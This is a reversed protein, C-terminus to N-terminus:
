GIQTSFIENIPSIIWKISLYHITYYKPSATTALRVTHCRYRVSWVFLFVRQFAHKEKQTGAAM